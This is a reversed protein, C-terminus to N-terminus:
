HFNRGKPLIERTQRMSSDFSPATEDKQRYEAPLRSEPKKRFRAAMPDRRVEDARALGDIPQDLDSLGAMMPTLDFMQRAVIHIVGDQSQLPGCIGVFRSGLV